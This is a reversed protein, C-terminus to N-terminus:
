NRANHWIANTEAGIVGAPALIRWGSPLAYWVATVALTALLGAAIVRESSPHAGLLPNAESSGQKLFRLTQAIDIWIMAVSAGLVVGEVVTPQKWQFVSEEVHQPAEDLVLNLPEAASAPAAVFVMLALAAIWSNLTGM